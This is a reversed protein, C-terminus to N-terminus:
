PRDELAEFRLLDGAALLCPEARLPDFLALPTRGIIQWGGPTEQPYIGTQLGAIGVSGAPVRTRPAARRPAALVPDLGGLYPFGPSFGLFYVRYAGACHRAVVEAPSLGCHAAVEALDPGDEGGYRVPIVVTRPVEGGASGEELVELEHALGEADWARPDFQVALTAYAPVVGLIGPLSGRRLRRAMAHVRDNVLPDIGEGFTLLLASDGLPAIRVGGAAM